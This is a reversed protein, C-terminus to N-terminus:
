IHTPMKGDNKGPLSRLDNGKNMKGNLPKKEGASGKVFTGMAPTKGVVDLSRAVRAM